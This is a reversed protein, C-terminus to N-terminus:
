SLGSAKVGGGHDQRPGARDGEEAEEQGPRGCGWERCELRAALSERSSATGEAQFASKGSRWLFAGEELFGERFTEQWM